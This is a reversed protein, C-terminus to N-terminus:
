MMADSDKCTKCETGSLHQFFLTAAALLVRKNGRVGGDRFMARWGKSEKEELAIAALIDDREVLVERDELPLGRLAALARHGEENRGKYYLWRPSEPLWITMVCIVLCFIIPLAMPIRFSAAGAISATGYDVWYAIIIGIILMSLMFGMDRGRHRPTSCENLYPPATATCMGLGWGLVIRGVILQVREYQLLSTAVDAM